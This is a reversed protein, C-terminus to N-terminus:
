ITGRSPREIRTWGYKNGNTAYTPQLSASKRPWRFIRLFRTKAKLFHLFYPLFWIWSSRTTSQTTNPETSSTTTTTTTTSSSTGSAAATTAGLNMGIGVGPFGMSSYLDPAARQLREMGEQIQRIAALAEPNTMLGQVAPNQLQQMFAPMSNRMQEQFRNWSFKIDLGSTHDQVWYYRYNPIALLFHTVQYSIPQWIPTRLWPKFCLRHTPLMWCTKCLSLIIRCKILCHNCAQFM